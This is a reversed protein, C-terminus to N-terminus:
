IKVIFKNLHPIDYRVSKGSFNIYVRTKLVKTIIGMGWEQYWRDYVSMGVKYNKRTM